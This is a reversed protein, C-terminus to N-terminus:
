KRKGREAAVTTNAERKFSGTYPSVLASKDQPKTSAAPAEKATPATPAPAAPPAHLTVLWVNLRTEDKALVAEAPIDDGLKFHERAVRIAEAETLLGERDRDFKTSGEIAFGVIASSVEANQVSKEDTRYRAFMEYKGAKRGYRYVLLKREFSEGAEVDQMSTTEDPASLYQVSDITEPDGDVRHAYFECIGAGPVAIVNRETGTNKVSVTAIMPEGIQYTEKDLKLTVEVKPTELDLEGSGGQLICGTIGLSLPLLLASAALHSRLSRSFRM